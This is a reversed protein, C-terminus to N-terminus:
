LLIKFPFTFHESFHDKIQFVCIFDDTEKIM